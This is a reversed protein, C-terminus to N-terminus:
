TTATAATEVGATEEVEPAVDPLEDELNRIRPNTWALASAAILILSSVMFLFGIGRGPGTGIITGLPTTSLPSDQRFLPEFVQDALPGALLFALPMMSRSIM